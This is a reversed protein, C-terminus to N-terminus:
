TNKNKNSKIEVVNIKNNEKDIEKIIFTYNKYDFKDNENPLKGMKELVFGGLTTYITDLEIELENELKTIRSNGNAILKKNEKRINEIKNVDFQDRIDGVLEEIVDEVTIIGRTSGWEDIVAAMQKNESKMYGLLENVTKTEPVILIDRKIEEINEIDETLIDKIDILGIANKEDDFIPLRTYGHEKVKEKVDEVSSDNKVSIVDNVPIMVEGATKDDLEFVDRIMQFEQLDVDGENASDGLLSIIEEEELVEETESAPSIGILGTFFNSSGNFIKILPLFLFYFFRIPKAILLSLKEARQIAITKAALEGFVVHLYTIVSFGIIFTALGHAALLPFNEPTIAVILSAIAPEGISGLALSSITIGIQTVALYDDLDVLINELTDSAFRGQNSLKEASSARMRVLAFESAVFFGNM